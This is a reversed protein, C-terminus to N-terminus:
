EDGPEQGRRLLRLGPDRECRSGKALAAFAEAQREDQVEHRVCWDMVVQRHRIKWREGRREFCDIYRGSFELAQTGGRLLHRAQVCTEGRAHNGEIVIVSQGLLHQTLEYVEDLAPGVLAAFEHAPGKFAGYDVAADPWYASKLLASDYRDLGRSHCALVDQIALRAAVEGATPIVGTEATVTRV